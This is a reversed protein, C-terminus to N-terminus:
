GEFKNIIPYKRGLGFAKKSVRIGPAAQRRKFESLRIRQLLDKILSQDKYNKLFESNSNKDTILKDILPSVIDYDFPDVQNPGLEASPPKTLSGNPIIIQKFKKNIWKSLSYVQSKSLDSIVALSGAMDGYITCYGLATETKNSTNLLLAGKKNAITMLLNGRIRAQLNEEAIRSDSREFINSIKELMVENISEISIIEFEIKLNKSLERADTISHDSSFVSPMSIGFVNQAGLANQALVATLASDIGGSLGIVAQNHGSKFFYDKIGLNLAHFIEEEETPPLFNINNNLNLDIIEISEEFGPLMNIIKGNSNAVCSRGDFVLEDQAGVLNCYIFPCNLKKSKLKILNLREQLKGVHFPSASINILIDSGKKSLIDCVKLDYDQDWLDECILVGLSIQDGRINVKIPNISGSEKFYRKEDFVDYTPLHTKDSYGIISGNQIIVASNYLKSNEYRITGIVVPTSKVILTIKELQKSAQYIFNNNLLLDEPPYGTLVMEPFIVLDSDDSYTQILSIIKKTNEDLSGVIPNIQCILVKM